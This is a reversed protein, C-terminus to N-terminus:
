QYKKLGELYSPIVVTDWNAITSWSLYAAMLEGSIYGYGFPMLVLWAITTLAFGVFLFGFAFGLTYTNNMELHEFYM